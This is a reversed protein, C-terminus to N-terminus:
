RNANANPTRNNYIPASFLAAIRRDQRDTQRNWAVQEIGSWKIPITGYFVLLFGQSPLRAWAAVRGGFTASVVTFGDGAGHKVTNEVVNALPRSRYVRHKLLM